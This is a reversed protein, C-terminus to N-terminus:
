GMLKRLIKLDEKNTLKINEQKGEFLHVKFGALEVLTSEDTYNKKSKLKKHQGKSSLYSEKLDKYRFVQPTQVTWLNEREITTDITKGTTKKVTDTIKLGFITNGHKEAFGLISGILKRDINPRVADHILILDNDDAQIQNFANQVSDFRTKGGEVILSLTSIKYKSAYFGILDFYKRKASIIIEHIKNCKQLTIASYIFVPKGLLKLFQKPTKSTSKGSFRKGEGGAALIAYVKPL